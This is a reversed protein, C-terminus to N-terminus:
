RPTECMWTTVNKGMRQKFAISFTTYSRYGSDHATQQISFNHHSAVAENYLSIFHNIRLNNIYANYTTGHSSFYYSLYSRNTGIAQALQSLTLNHQLYLQPAICYRQLLASINDYTYQSLGYKEMDEAITTEEISCTQPQSISLDNLTEVRWLLYCTLVFGVIQIIYEYTPSGTGWMYYSITLIISVMVVFTQVLEKHELDAYNDRLWHGYQRLAWVLYIILGAGLLLLYAYIVPVFAYSRSFICWLAGMTPPVMILPVPWLPRKRDQLLVLMVCITLPIFLMFDLTAGILLCLKVDDSSTLFASPMYWLHSLAMSAFFAATWRRLRVPPNNGPAFANGRRFLLYCCAIINTMAVAAYLMFFLINQPLPQDYM